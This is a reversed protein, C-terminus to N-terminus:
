YQIRISEEAGQLVQQRDRVHLQLSAGGQASTRQVTLEYPNTGAPSVQRGDVQWELVDPNNFVRTSLYYPEARLAANAGSLTYSEGVAVGRVGYLSNVEYFTIRPEASPVSISRKALVTGSRDTVELSLISDSGWPMTFSVQNGGRQPGGGIVTQQNLRWTYVLDAPAYNANGDHLLATANVTSGLSPLARGRYGPPVRTQPDLIIDLYRPEITEELTVSQGQSPNLQVTIVQTEGLETAEFQVSRQNSAESIVEGDLLWTITAGFTTNSYDELTATVSEGPSPYAPQLRIERQPGTFNQQDFQAWALTPTLLLGIGVSILSVLFIRSLTQSVCM